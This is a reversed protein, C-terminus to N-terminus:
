RIVDSSNNWTTQPYKWTMKEKLQPAKTGDAWSAKMAHSTSVKLDVMYVEVIEDKLCFFKEHLVFLIVDM